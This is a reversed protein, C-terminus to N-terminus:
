KENINNRIFQKASIELELKGNQAIYMIDYIEEESLKSENIELSELWQRFEDYGFRNTLKGGSRVWSAVFRTIHIGKILKNEWM